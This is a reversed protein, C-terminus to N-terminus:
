LWTSRLTQGSSCNRLEPPRDATIIILPTGSLSAEIVAPLYNAAATGSTSILAVPRHTRKAIGLAFFAASREDLISLAEVRANRAAALTLPASRAGPSTIVTEVGLRGLVEITLTGWASNESSCSVSDFPTTVPLM